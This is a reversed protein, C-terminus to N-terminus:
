KGRRSHSKVWSPRSTPAVDVHRLNINRKIPLYYTRQHDAPVLDIETIQEAAYIQYLSIFAWAETTPSGSMSALYNILWAELGKTQPTRVYRGKRTARYGAADLLRRPDYGGKWFISRREGPLPGLLTLAVTHGRQIAENLARVAVTEGATVTFRAEKQVRHGHKDVSAFILPEAFMRPIREPPSWNEMGKKRRRGEHHESATHGRLAALDDVWRGQAEFRRLGNAYRRLQDTSMDDPASIRRNGRRLERWNESSALYDIAERRSIRVFRAM